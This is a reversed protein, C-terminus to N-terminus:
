FDLTMGDYASQVEIGLNKSLAQAQIHPKAKLMTMGFHTLIARKPKIDKILVEADALSLHDIGARPEFFVVSIILIDTKYFAVLEKFYRTDTLLSVSTDHIKFKLGYTQVPHIHPMSTKFEFNDVNYNKNAGLIELKELFKIEHKLIVPDEDIADSPCFVTGRKKFGGETMAEIIVNVDATHDLHRHTLIIADLQSPDLKPKSTSCRVISGPGPDVLVNTGGSSIWLGGSARLQKIMVFRAGATGLFKIFDSAITKAKKSKVKSKVGAM